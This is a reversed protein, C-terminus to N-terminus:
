RPWKCEPYVAQAIQIIAKVIGPSSRSATNGDILYLRGNKVANISSFGPRNEISALAARGGGEEAYNNALIVDPNAAIVAEATPAFWGKKDAFINVAGVLNIVEHLYTNSGTTVPYPDSSVEYYVTRKQKITEAVRSIASIQGEMRAVLAAGGKPVGLADAIEDIEEYIEEISDATKIYAIKIGLDRLPKFPDDGASSRNVSSAVILTPELNIIAEADPSAFDIHPLGRPVGPLKASYPDLAILFNGFGLATIVETNAPATSIIRMPTQQPSAAALALLLVFFLLFCTCRKPM